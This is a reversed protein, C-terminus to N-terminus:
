KSLEILKDQVDKFYWNFKFSFPPYYGVDKWNIDDGDDSKLIGKSFAEKPLGADKLAQLTAIINKTITSIFSDGISYDSPRKAIKCYQPNMAGKLAEEVLGNAKISGDNSIDVEILKDAGANILAELVDADNYFAAIFAANNINEKSLKNTALLAAVAEHRNDKNAERRKQMNLYNIHNENYKNPILLLEVLKKKHEIAIGLASNNNSDLINVDLHKNEALLVIKSPDLAAARHLATFGQKDKANIQDASLALIFPRISDNQKNSIYEIPQQKNCVLGLDVKSSKDEVLAEILVKNNDLIAKHLVSDLKGNCNQVVKETTNELIFKAAQKQTVYLLSSFGKSNYRNFIDPDKEHLAKLVSLKNHSAAIDAVTSQANTEEKFMAPELLKIISDHGEQAALHGATSGNPTKQKIVDPFKAMLEKFIELRGQLAASLLPTFGSSDKKQM